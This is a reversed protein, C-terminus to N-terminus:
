LLSEQKNSPTFYRVPKVKRKLVGEKVLRRLLERAQNPSIRLEAAVQVDTKPIEMQSLLEKLRASLENAPTVPPADSMPPPFSISVRPVSESEYIEIPKDAITLPLQKQVSTGKEIDVPVNLVEEFAEPTLPNPWSLAGKELLAKLGKETNGNSRVYMPVFHLKKLQEVAGAWTGGKEYDSSVVLAADALAYIMKNREMAHGVNFGAAPDYPSILVLQENMLYERVERALALRELSDALVGVSRGGAQLAGYMAAQDIGRAGGSVVTRHSEAALRGINETYEVLENDVQRSGIVALGGTDLITADGCGYLVAPAIERLREKM